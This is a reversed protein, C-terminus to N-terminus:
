VSLFFHSLDLPPTLPHIHIHISTPVIPHDTADTFIDEAVGSCVGPTIFDM